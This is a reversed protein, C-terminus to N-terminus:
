ANTLLEERHAMAAIVEAQTNGSIEIDDNLRDVQTMRWGHCNFQDYEPDCEHCEISLRGMQIWRRNGGDYYDEFQERSWAEAM